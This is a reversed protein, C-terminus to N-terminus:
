AYKMLLNLYKRDLKQGQWDEYAVDQRGSNLIGFTGSFEWIGFGIGKEHLIDLVDEFWALFVAHPTKNYAGCEGCHVGVGMEMLAFWPAYYRELMEKNYMKGNYEGPWVPLPLIDTDKYVWPAQYHSVIMPHYARCSQAIGLDALEPVGIGGGGNGDAIVLRSSKVHKITQVAAKAVRYYDEVPVPGGPSHQDNVDQRMFPENVLDFSLKKSSIHKYRKAWMEWHACFADLAEQDKWLNYPEVFGANICFGPARHLNLSVHLGQKHAQYILNDIEELRREDFNLVEEALIPRSRDFKLYAPYSIPVRVFDFGWDAMWKFHEVPNKRGKDADPDFFDLLNFGRWKPLKNKPKPLESAFLTNAGFTFGAAMLSSKVLFDRRSNNNNQM